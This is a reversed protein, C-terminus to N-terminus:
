QWASRKPITITGRLIVKGSEKNCSEVSQLSRPCKGLVTMREREDIPNRGNRNLRTGKKIKSFININKELNYHHCSKM